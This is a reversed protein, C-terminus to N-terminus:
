HETSLNKGFRRKRRAAALVIRLLSNCHFRLREGLFAAYRKWKRRRISPTIRDEPLFMADVHGPFGLPLLRRRTVRLRDRLRPLMALHLLLEDKNPRFHSILPSPAYDAFWGHIDRPLRAVEDQVAEPFRCGFWNKALFFAIAQLQRLSPDHWEKWQRWLDGNELQNELFYALELAHAPKLDGRLLHRLAHLAAYGLQNVPRLAPLPRENFHQQTRTLRFKDVGPARICETREDWLRFHLEVIPPIDPDFYDGKWHWDVRRVMPPLHDIPLREHGRVTDFGLEGLLKRAQRVVDRSCLLDLDYQMRLRADRVFNPAQLFGKLVIHEVGHSDLCDAIELYEQSLRALRQSNAAFNREIRERVRDPLHSRCTDGFVLTLQSRDCFRLAEDWEAECLSVLLEESPEAFNLAALVARSGGSPRCARVTCCLVFSRIVPILTLRRM